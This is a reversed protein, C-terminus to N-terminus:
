HRYRRPDTKLYLYNPKEQEPNRRTAGAASWSRPQYSFGRRVLLPTEVQCSFRSATHSATSTQRQRSGAYTPKSIGGYPSRPPGAFATESAVLLALGLTVSAIRTFHASM